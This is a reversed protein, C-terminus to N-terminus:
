RKLGGSGHSAMVIISGDIESAEEIIQQSPSGSRVNASAKVGTVEADDVFGQLYSSIEKKQVDIRFDGAYDDAGYEMGAVGVGFFPLRLIETFIIEARSAQAIEMAPKVSSESLTSGDLPVIVREPADSTKEFEHIGGPYLTLLPISTSHLVSGLVGRALASERRTAMAILDVSEAHAGSVIVEAPSGAGARISSKVGATSIIEAEVKLDDEAQAFAQNIVDGPTHVASGVTSGGIASRKELGRTTAELIDIDEPDIVSLLIIEASLVRELVTAWGVIKRAHESGDLPVLIKKFM